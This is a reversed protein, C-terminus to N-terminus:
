LTIFKMHENTFKLFFNWTCTQLYVFNGFLWLQWLLLNINVFKCNSLNCICKQMNVLKCISFKCM